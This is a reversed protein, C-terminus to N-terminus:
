RIKGGESLISVYQRCRYLATRVQLVRIEEEQFAIAASREYQLLCEVMVLVAHVPTWFNAM